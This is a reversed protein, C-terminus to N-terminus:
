WRRALGRAARVRGSRPLGTSRVAYQSAVSSVTSSTPGSAPWLLDGQHPLGLDDVRRLGGGELAGRRKSTMTQSFGSGLGSPDGASRGAFRAVAAPVGSPPVATALGAARGRARGPDIPQQRQDVDLQGRGPLLDVGAVLEGGLEDVRRGHRVTGGRGRRGGVM